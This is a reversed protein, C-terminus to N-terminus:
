FLAGQKSYYHALQKTKDARIHYVIEGRYLLSHTIIYGRHCKEPNEESCMIAINEDKSMDILRSIGNRYWERKEIEDFIIGGVINMVSKDFPRGGLTKGFDKYKIGNKKLFHILNPKNFHTKYASDPNSRVDVVTAIHFEKLLEVFFDFEHNSHGITFIM